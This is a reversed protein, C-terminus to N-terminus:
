ATVERGPSIEIRQRAALQRYLENSEHLLARLEPTAQRQKRESDPEFSRSPDKADMRSVAAIRACQEPTLPGLVSEVIRAITEGRLEAYDVVIMDNRSAERLLTLLYRHIAMACYEASSMRAIRSADGGFVRAADRVDLRMFGGPRLLNSIAVEVPDRFLLVAPQRGTARRYRVVHRSSVSPLKVVVRSCGFHEAYLALVGRLTPADADGGRLLASVIPPESLILVGDVEKMCASLLTSGCRSMHAIVGAAVRSAARDAAAARLVDIKTRVPVQTEQCDRIAQAFFPRRSASPPLPLWDVVRVDGNVRIRVPVTGMVDARGAFATM